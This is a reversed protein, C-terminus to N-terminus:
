ETMARSAQVTSGPTQIAMGRKFDRLSFQKRRRAELLKLYRNIQPFMKGIKVKLNEKREWQATGTDLERHGGLAATKINCGVGPLIIEKEDSSLHLSLKRFLIADCTKSSFSKKLFM